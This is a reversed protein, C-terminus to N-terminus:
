CGVLCPQSTKWRQQVVLPVLVAMAMAVARQQQLQQDQACVLQAQDAAAAPARLRQGPQQQGARAQTAPVPAAQHPTLVSCLCSM